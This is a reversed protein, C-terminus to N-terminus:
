KAHDGGGRTLTAGKAHPHARNYTHMMRGVSVRPEESSRCTVTPWSRFVIRCAVEARYAAM